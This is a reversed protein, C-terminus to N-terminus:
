HEQPTPHASDAPRVSNDIRVPAGNRLKIQGSTVIVMGATVGKLIAVQDGRKDGTTVLVQQVTPPLPHDEADRGPSPKVVYVIDGYPNYVIAAQPLTLFRQKRGVDVRLSAFMGPRLTGDANALTAEIQANRTTTAVQPSIASIRGSFRRRPYADLALSVSQGLKLQGLNRQPLYFDAYMSELQQVTVIRSGASLYDGPSVTIIGARGAFPARLRKKSVVAKQQAVAARKAKLDAAAADYDAHSIAKIALQRRARDFTLQALRATAKIQQLQAVDEADDLQLLLQGRTVRQGSKLPVRTVLGAVDLALDAGRVARLTGVASLTRQWLQYGATTASVTAPVPKPLGAITHMVLLVKVGVIAAVMLLVGVIMLIMRKGTHPPQDVPRQM